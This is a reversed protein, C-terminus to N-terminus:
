LFFLKELNEFFFRNFDKKMKFTNIKESSLVLFSFGIDYHFNVM